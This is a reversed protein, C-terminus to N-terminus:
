VSVARAVAADLEEYLEPLGPIATTDKKHMYLLHRVRLCVGFLDQIQSACTSDQEPAHRPSTM